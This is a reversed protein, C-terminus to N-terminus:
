LLGELRKRINDLQDNDSTRKEDETIFKNESDQWNTIDRSSEPPALLIREEETKPLFGKEVLRAEYGSQECFSEIEEQELGEVKPKPFDQAELLICYREADDENEFMLVLTRGQIELSHIGENESGSEYLLVYVYM